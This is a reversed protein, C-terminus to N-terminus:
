VGALAVDTFAHENILVWWDANTGAENDARPALAVLRLQAVATKADSSDIEHASIGTTTSGSGAVIDCNNGINTFAMAGGGSDEQIEFITWPDDCVLIDGATSAPLYRRSLDGYDGLVGVCVGLINGGAGAPACYGDSELKIFDGLFIATGNSSDVKWKNAVNVPGGDARKVPRAGRPNDINAM